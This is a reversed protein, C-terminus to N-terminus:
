HLDCGNEDEVCVCVCMCTHPWNIQRKLMLEMTKESFTLAEFLSMAVDGRM